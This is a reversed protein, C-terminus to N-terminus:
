FLLLYWYQCPTSVLMLNRVFRKNLWAIGRDFCIRFLYKFSLAGRHWQTAWFGRICYCRPLAVRCRISSILLFWQVLWSRLCSPPEWQSDNTRQAPSETSLHFYLKLYRSSALSSKICLLKYLVLKPQMSVPDQSDIVLEYRCCWYEIRFHWQIHGRINFFFTASSRM